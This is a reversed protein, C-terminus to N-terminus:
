RLRITGEISGGGASTVFNFLREVRYSGSANAFRGTGGTITADEVIRLVNPDATPFGAGTWDASLTDGNAATLDYTGTGVGTTLNVIEDYALTFQGLQTANGTGTGTVALTVSNPFSLSYVGELRGKFPMEHGAAALTATAAGASLGATASPSVPSVSGSCASALGALLLAAISYRIRSRLSPSQM